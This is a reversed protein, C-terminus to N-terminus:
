EFDLCGIPPRSQSLARRHPAPGSRQPRSGGFNGGFLGWFAVCFGWLIWGFDEGFFGFDM